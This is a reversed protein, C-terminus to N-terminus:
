AAGHWTLEESAYLDTAAAGDDGAPHLVLIPCSVLRVLREAMAGATASPDVDLRRRSGLVILNADVDAALSAVEETPVGAAVHTRVRQSGRGHAGCDAGDLVEAVARELHALLGELVVDLARDPDATARERDCTEAAVRVAHVEHCPWHGAADLARRLVPATLASGDVAAVVVFPKSRIM